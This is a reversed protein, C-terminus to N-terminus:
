QMKGYTQAVLGSGIFLSKIEVYDFAAPCYIIVYTVVILVSSHTHVCNCIYSSSFETMTSSVVLGVLDLILSGWQPLMISNKNADKM